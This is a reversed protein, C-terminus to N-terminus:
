NLHKSSCMQVYVRSMAGGPEAVTVLTATVGKIHKADLMRM